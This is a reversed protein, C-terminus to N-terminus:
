KSRKRREQEQLAAEELAQAKAPVFTHRESRPRRRDGKPLSLMWEPVHCGSTRMASAISRLDDRDSETFLTIARGEEGARGARGVRHVYDSRTKPFDFNIVTKVGAFDMGRAVLDTAVLVWASGERFRLIAREKEWQEMGAHACAVPVRLGADAELERRAEVARERGDVFVLCPVELGERLLQRMALPKGTERGVFRLEQNVSKVPNNREGVTVKIQRTLMGSALHEVREPITASFLSKSASAPAMGVIADVSEAFGRELLRDAEDLVLWEVSRLPLSGREGQRAIRVPPGVVVKAGEVEAGDRVMAKSPVDPALERAVAATQRALERTPSVVLAELGEASGSGSLSAILPALFAVTKGSGTPAAAMLDRRALLSPIAQRQIPTPKDFGMERLRNCLWQPLGEEFSALPHPPEEGTVKIRHRNRIRGARESSTACKDDGEEEAKAAREGANSRAGRGEFRRIEDQFRKANFTVGARLVDFPDQAFAMAGLEGGHPARRLVPVLPLLSSPPRELAMPSAQELALVSVVQIVRRNAAVVGERKVLFERAHALEPARDRPAMKLGLCRQLLVLPALM